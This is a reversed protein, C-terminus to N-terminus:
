HDHPFAFARVPPKSPGCRRYEGRHELVLRVARESVELSFKKSKTMAGIEWSNAPQQFFRVPTM